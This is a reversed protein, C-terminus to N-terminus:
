SSWRARTLTKKRPREPNSKIFDIPDLTRTVDKKNWETTNSAKRQFIYFNAKGQVNGATVLLQKCKLDITM